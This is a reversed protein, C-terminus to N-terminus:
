RHMQENTEPGKSDRRGETKKQIEKRERGGADATIERQWRCARQRGNQKETGRHMIHEGTKREKKREEKYM